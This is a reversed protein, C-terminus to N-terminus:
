HRCVVRPCGFKHNYNGPRGPSDRQRGERQGRLCGRNTRGNGIWWLRPFPYQFPKLLIPNLSLNPLATGRRYINYYSILTVLYARHTHQRLCSGRPYAISALLCSFIALTQNLITLFTLKCGGDMMKGNCFVRLVWQGKWWQEIESDLFFFTDSAERQWPFFSSILRPRVLRRRRRCM